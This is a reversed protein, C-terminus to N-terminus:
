PVMTKDSFNALFLGLRKAVLCQGPQPSLAEIFVGNLEQQASCISDNGFLSRVSRWMHM